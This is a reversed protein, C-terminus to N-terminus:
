KYRYGVYGCKSCHINKKLLNPIHSASVKNDDDLLEDRCKPCEIGNRQPENNQWLVRNAREKQLNHEKLTIM